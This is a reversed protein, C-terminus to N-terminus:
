FLLLVKINDEYSNISSFLTTLRSFIYANLSVGILLIIICM